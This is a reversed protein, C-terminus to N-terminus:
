FDPNGVILDPIDFDVHKVVEAVGQAGDVSNVFTTSVKEMSEPVM